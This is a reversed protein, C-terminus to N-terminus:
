ESIYLGLNKLNSKDFQRYGVFFILKKEVDPPPGTTPNYESLVVLRLFTTQYTGRSLRFHSKFDDISYLTVTMEFFRHVQPVYQRKVSRANYLFDNGSM